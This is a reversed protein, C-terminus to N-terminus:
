KLKSRYKKLGLRHMSLINKNVPLLVLNEYPKFETIKKYFRLKGSALTVSNGYEILENISQAHCSGRGGYRRNYLLLYTKQTDPIHKAM